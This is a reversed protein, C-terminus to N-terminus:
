LEFNASPAPLLALWIQKAKTTLLRHYCGWDQFFLSEPIDLFNMKLLKIDKLHQQILHYLTCIASIDARGMCLVRSWPKYGFLVNKLIKTKAKSKCAQTKVSFQLRLSIYREENWVSYVKFPLSFSAEERLSAPNKAPQTM